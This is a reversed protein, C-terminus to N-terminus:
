ILYPNAINFNELYNIEKAEMVNADKEKKHDHGLLHLIGHALLHMMHDDILRNLNKAESEAFLINIAIDGLEKSIPLANLDSPFSLVNTDMMKNRYNTNLEIMEESSVLKLNVELNRSDHDKLIKATLLRLNELLGESLKPPIDQFINLSM